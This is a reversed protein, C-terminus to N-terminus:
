LLTLATLNPTSANIMFRHYQLQIRIVNAGLEKMEIFDTKITQYVDEDLWNDDILGM